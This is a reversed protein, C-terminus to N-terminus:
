RRRQGRRRRTTSGESASVEDLLAGIEDLVGHDAGGSRAVGLILRAITAYHAREGSPLSALHAAVTDVDGRVIPGTLAREPGVRAVNAAVSGILGALAVCGEREPMGAEVLIRLAHHALAATGNAALSLAAHYLPGHIPTVVPRASLARVLARVTRVARPDGDVVVSAGVLRTSCSGFSVVPHAVAVPAGRAKCAVLVSATKAGSAHVVPPMPSPLARAIRAEVEALYRDPVAIWVLRARALRERLSASGRGRVLSVDINVDRLSAALARGLRGRGVIVVPTSGSTKPLDKM